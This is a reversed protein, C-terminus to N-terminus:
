RIILYFTLVNKNLIMCVKWGVVTSYATPEKIRREWCTRQHYGARRTVGGECVVTPINALWFVDEFRCIFNDVSQFRNFFSLQFVLLLLILYINVLVRIGTDNSVLFYWQHYTRNTSCSSLVLLYYIFFNVTLKLTLHLTLM